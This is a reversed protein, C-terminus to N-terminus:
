AKVDLLPQMSVFDGWSLSRIRELKFETDLMFAVGVSSIVPNVHVQVLDM